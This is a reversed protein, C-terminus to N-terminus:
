LSSISDVVEKATVVASAYNPINIDLAAVIVIRDRRLMATDAVVLKVIECGLGSERLRQAIRAAIQHDNEGVM